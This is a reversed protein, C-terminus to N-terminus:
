LRALKRCFFVQFGNGVQEFLFDYLGKNRSRKRQMFGPKGVFQALSSVSTATDHEM